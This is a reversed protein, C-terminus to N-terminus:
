LPTQQAQNWWDLPRDDDDYVNAFYWETGPIDGAWVTMVDEIADFTAIVPVTVVIFRLNDPAEVIGGLPAMSAQLSELSETSRGDSPLVAVLALNGGHRVVRHHGDPEVDILDEAACGLVLGPTGLLRFRSGRLHEAPVMEYVPQGDGTHAAWLRVHDHGAEAAPQEGM